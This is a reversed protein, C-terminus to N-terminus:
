LVRVRYTAIEKPPAGTDHSQRLVFTLEGEGRGVAKFQFTQVVGGHGVSPPLPRGFRGAMAGVKTLQDLHEAKGVKWMLGTGEDLYLRVLLQQEPRLVVDGGSQGLTAVLPEGPDPPPIVACGAVGLALGLALLLGGVVRM